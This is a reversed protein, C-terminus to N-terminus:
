EKGPFEESASGSEAHGADNCQMLSLRLTNKRITM